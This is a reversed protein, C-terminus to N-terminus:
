MTTKTDWVAPLEVAQEVAQETVVAFYIDFKWRVSEKHPSDVLPQHIGKVFPWHPPFHGHWSPMMPLFKKEM